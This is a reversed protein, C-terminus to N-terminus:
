GISSFVFTIDTLRAALVKRSNGVLLSRNRQQGCVFEFEVIGTRSILAGDPM